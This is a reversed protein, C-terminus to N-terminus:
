QDIVRTNPFWQAFTCFPPELLLDKIPYSATHPALHSAVLIQTNVTLVVSVSNRM